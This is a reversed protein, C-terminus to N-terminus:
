NKELISVLWKHINVPLLSPLMYKWDNLSGYGNKMVKKFIVRAADLDRKWYAIYGRKLLEGTTLFAIRKKGIKKIYEPYQKIFDMQVRWHNIAIRANSKTIQVGSHHRYYAMVREVRAIRFHTAARIWIYFDMCSTLNVDFPGTYDFVERNCLVGHIPWRTSQIMLEIKNDMKEYDPPIFPEKHKYDGVHQWGCYVLKVDEEIVKDLMVELFDNDWYDDSDLFAIYDGDAYKLATNRAGSAGQNKQEILHVGTYGEVVKVSDDTSGDDVVIIQTNKYNQNLASELAESVYKENNYCPIIISIKPGYLKNM